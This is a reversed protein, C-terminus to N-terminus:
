EISGFSNAPSHNMSCALRRCGVGISTQSNRSPCTSKTPTVSEIASAHRRQFQKWRWVAAVRVWCRSWWGTVWRRSTDNGLWLVSAVAGVALAGVALAPLCMAGNVGHAPLLLFAGLAALLVALVQFRSLVFEPPVPLDPFIDLLPADGVEVDLGKGDATDAAAVLRGGDVRAVITVQQLPVENWSVRVDGVRPDGPTSSTVLYNQYQSFSAALNAPLAKLDPTAQTSGPLAHM